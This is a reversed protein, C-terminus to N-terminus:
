GVPTGDARPIIPFTDADSQPGSKEKRRRGYLTYITHLRNGENDYFAITGSMACINVHATEGGVMLFIGYGTTTALLKSM